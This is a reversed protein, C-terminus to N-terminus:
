SNRPPPRYSAHATRAFPRKGSSIPKLKGRLSWLVDRSHIRPVSVVVGNAMVQYGREDYGSLRHLQGLSENKILLLVNKEFGIQEALHEETASLCTARDSAGFLAIAASMLIAILRRDSRKSVRGAGIKGILHLMSYDFFLLMNMPSLCYAPISQGM